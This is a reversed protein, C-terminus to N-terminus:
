WFATYGLVVYRLVPSVILSLLVCALVMVAFTQWISHKMLYDTTLDEIRQDLSPRRACRNKKALKKMERFEEEDLGLGEQDFMRTLRGCKPCHNVFKDGSMYELEAKEVRYQYHCGTFATDGCEILEGEKWPRPRGYAEITTSPARGPEHPKPGNADNTREM